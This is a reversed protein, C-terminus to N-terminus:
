RRRRNNKKGRGFIWKVVDEVTIFSGVVSGILGMWRAQQGGIGFLNVVDVELAKAYLPQRISQGGGLPTFILTMRVVGRYNGASDPKITWAFSTRQGPLVPMVLPEPPNVNAGPLDLQAEAQVSFTDYVNPIPITTETTTHDDFQATAVVGQDSAELTLLIVDSDGERMGPPYELNVSRNEPIGAPPNASEASQVGERGNNQQSQAPLQMQQPLFGEALRTAQAPWFGWAVFILAAVLIILGILLRITKM